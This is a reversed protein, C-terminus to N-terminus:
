LQQDNGSLDAARELTTRAQALDGLQYLVIGKTNQVSARDPALGEARQITDLADALRGSYASTDSQYQYQYANALHVLADVNGADLELAAQFAEISAPYAGQCSLARGKGVQAAANGEDLRLAEQFYFQALSCDGRDLYFEGDSILTAADPAAGAADDQAFVTAPGLAVAAMAMLGLLLKRPYKTSILTDEPSRRNALLRHPSQLMEGEAAA